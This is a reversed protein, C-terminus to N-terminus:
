HTWNRTYCRMEIRYKEFVLDVIGHISPFMGVIIVFTVPVSVPVSVPISFPPIIIFVFVLFSALSVVIFSRILVMAPARLLTAATATTVPFTCSLFGAVLTRGGGSLAVVPVLPMVGFAASAGRM